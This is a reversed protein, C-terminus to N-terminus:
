REKPDVDDLAARLKRRVRHLRSGVTGPPIGLAAATEEHSLEGWVVLTLVDRDGPPLDALVGV